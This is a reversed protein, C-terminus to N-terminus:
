EETDTADIGGTWSRPCNFRRSGARVIAERRDARLPIQKRYQEPIASVALQVRNEYETLMARYDQGISDAAKKWTIRCEKEAGTDTPETWTIGDADGIHLQLQQKLKAESLKAKAAVVRAVRLREILDREQPTAPRPKAKNAPYLHGVAAGDAAKGIPEPARDAIVHDRWWRAASEVVREARTQDYVLHYVTVRSDMLLALDWRRVNYAWMGVQCQIWEHVPVDDTGPPGYEHATFIRHSKCELGCLGDAAKSMGDAAASVTIGDALAVISRPPKVVSVGFRHAYEDRIVPELAHGMRFREADDEAPRGRGTLSLWMSLPTEYPSLGLIAGIASSPPGGASRDRLEDATLTM